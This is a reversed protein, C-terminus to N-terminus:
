KLGAQELISDKIRRSIDKSSNKFRITAKGTKIFLQM